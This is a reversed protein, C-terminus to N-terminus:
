CRSRESGIPGFVISSVILPSPISGAGERGTLGCLMPSSDAQGARDFRGDWRMSVRAKIKRALRVRQGRRMGAGLWLGSVGRSGDSRRMQMAARAPM